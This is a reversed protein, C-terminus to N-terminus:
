DQFVMSIEAGRLKRLEGVDIQTLDAGDFIVQGSVIRASYKPLLGMIALSTVSKGSGSEGVLGLTEGAHVDLSVGNVAYVCGDPTEFRVILDRVSLLPDSLGPARSRPRTPASRDLRSAWRRASQLGACFGAADARPLHPVVLRDAPLGAREGDDNGM